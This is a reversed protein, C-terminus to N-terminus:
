LLLVACRAPLFCGGARSLLVEWRLLPGCGESTCEGERSGGLQSSWLCWWPEEWLMAQLLCPAKLGM